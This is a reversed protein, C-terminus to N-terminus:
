NMDYIKTYEGKLKTLRNCIKDEIKTKYGFGNVVKVIKFFEGNQEIIDKPSVIPKTSTHKSDYESKYMVQGSFTQFEEGISMEKKACFVTLPKFMDKHVSICKAELECYCGDFKKVINVVEFRIVAM